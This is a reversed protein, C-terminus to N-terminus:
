PLCLLSNVSWAEAKESFLKKTLSWTESFLSSNRYKDLYEESIWKSYTFFVLPNRIDQFLELHICGESNRIREKREAFLAMFTGTEEPRFTMKVVRTLISNSESVKM